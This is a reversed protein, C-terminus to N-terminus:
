LGLILPRRVTKDGFAVERSPWTPIQSIIEENGHILYTDELKTGAITPNWSFAQNPLVKEDCETTACYDRTLYGLAGGQHHLHFDNEYGTKVYVEYANRVIDGTRAGEVTNLIYAADIQLLADYKRRIEDDLKGFCVIRSLSVVLGYKQACVAIMAYKDVTNFTPIPHRYRLLRKDAAVLCVPLRYGKEMFKASVKAAISFETEGRRIMRCCDEVMHSTEPGIERYRDVEAETLSYCLMQLEKGCNDTGYVGSDSAVRGGRFLEQLKKEESDHWRYSVLEFSSGALEEEPIRFMESSPCIVYERDSTIYIKAVSFPSSKNVFASKGCTIWSFNGTTTFLVGDYHRLNMFNRVRQFKEKSESSAM